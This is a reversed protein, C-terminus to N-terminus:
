KKKRMIKNHFYMSERWDDVKSYDRRYCKKWARITPKEMKVIQYIPYNSWDDRLNLHLTRTTKNYGWYIAM